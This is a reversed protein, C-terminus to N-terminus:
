KGTRNAHASKRAKKKPKKVCKGKRKVFGKRCKVPKAKPKAKPKAESPALNGVGSFTQSAPEGFISPQPAPAARCADTTTCVPVETAPFGGDVRADYIALSEGNPEGPLLAQRGLFFVDNGSDSSGLLRSESSSTGTTILHLGSGYEYEYVDAQGNTDRPLLAESTQFFVEGNNSPGSSNEVGGPVGFPNCSWCESRNSAASYIYSGFALYAGNPSLGVGGGHKVFVITGGHSLYLNPQGSEATEGFQNSQSGSMVAKATFYVYSGDESIGQLGAEAHAVPTLDSLQRTGMDYRYLNSGSGPVTDSTLGASADDTFFVQSGDATLGAFSGGGGPGPGERAEDVQVTRERNVRVYLNGGATFFVESGDPSISVLSGAVPAGSPLALTFLRV